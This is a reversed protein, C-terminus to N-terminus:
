QLGQSVHMHPPWTTESRGVTEMANAGKWVQMMEGDARVRAALLTCGTFRPTSASSLWAGYALRYEIQIVLASRFDSYGARYFNLGGVLSSLKM